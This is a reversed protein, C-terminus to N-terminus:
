DEIDDKVRRLVGSIAEKVIKKHYLYFGIEVLLSAGATFFALILLIWFVLSLNYDTAAVCLYGNEKKQMEIVTVDKRLFSGFTLDIEEAIIKGGERRITRSVKKFHEELSDFVVEEGKATKLKESIEFKM